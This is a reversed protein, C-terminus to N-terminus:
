GCPTQRWAASVSHTMSYDDTHYSLNRNMRSSKPYSMTSDLGAWVLAIAADLFFVLLTARVDQGVQVPSSVGCFRVHRVLLDDCYPMQDPVSVVPYLLPRLALVGYM